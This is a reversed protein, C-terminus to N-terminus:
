NVKKMEHGCVCKGPNQSISGCKCAEGCACAYKAETKFARPKEWGEAKFAATGDGLSVVKAKVMAHGCTCSGEKAAMSNCPCAEGCNCVYMEDGVKLATKGAGAFAAGVAMLVLVFGLVLYRNM